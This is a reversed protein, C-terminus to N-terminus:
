TFDKRGKYKRVKAQMYSTELKQFKTKYVAMKNLENVTQM